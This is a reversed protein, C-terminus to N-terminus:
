ECAKAETEVYEMVKKWTAMSEESNCFEQGSVLHLMNYYSKAKNSKFGPISNECLNAAVVNIMREYNMIDSECKAITQTHSTIDNAKASQSKWFNTLTKKGQNLKDLASQSSKKKSRTKSLQNELKEKTHIAELIAHLDYIEEKVWYKMKIYPNTIKKQLADFDEKM